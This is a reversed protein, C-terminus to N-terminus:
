IQKESRMRSELVTFNNNTVKTGPGLCNPHSLDLFLTVGPTIHSTPLLLAPGCVGPAWQICDVGGADSWEVGLEAWGLVGSM